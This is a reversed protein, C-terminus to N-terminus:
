LKTDDLKAIAKELLEIMDEIGSIPIPSENLFRLGSLVTDLVGREKRAHELVMTLQNRAEDRDGLVLKAQAYDARTWVDRPDDDLQLEAARLVRQYYEHAKTENGEHTYLTALNSVPYSSNPTVKRAHEYAEIADKYRQQRRYLGGLTGYYSQGEADTLREDSDLAELLKTEAQSWLLKQEPPQLTDGKRRLALGLAAIAPAFDAEQRIADELRQIASNYDKHVIYLYGLLYNTVQNNPDLAYANQLTRIATDFNHARVQQEALVLMSLVRMSNRAEQEVAAITGRTEEVMEDLRKSFIAKEEDL